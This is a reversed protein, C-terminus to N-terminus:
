LLFLKESFNNAIEELLADINEKNFFSNIPLVKSNNNFLKKKYEEAKTDFIIIRLNDNYALSSKIKTLTDYDRFSYGIVILLVSKDICRHFNDYATYFPDKKCIKKQTPFILVNRTNKTKKTSFPVEFYLIEGGKKYWTVSGHLKFLPINICNEEQKYNDFAKRKWTYKKTKQSEFGDIIKYKKLEGLKEIVIDYDTSFIPITFLGYQEKFFDFIPKYLRVVLNRNIEGYHEFILNEIKIKIDKCKERLSNFSKAIKAPTFRYHNPQKLDMITHLKNKELEGSYDLLYMIENIKKQDSLYRKDILSNLEQLVIELDKGKYEIITNLIKREEENLKLSLKDIFENMLWKGLCRSAGAGLFIQVGSNIIKANHKM